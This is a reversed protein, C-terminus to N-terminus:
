MRQVRMTGNSVDEVKSVYSIFAIGLAEATEPGVQATDGDITQRGCIILDDKGPSPNIKQIAQSLTYSTALTDSGAFAADGILIAEDAGCSIAERLIAEAQPPGMSLVTVKGGYREKLRVGEELAYTDFPNVVNKIGQIVLTNTQPDIEVKTTGPVQKLCVFINM